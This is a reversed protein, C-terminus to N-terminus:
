TIPGKTKRSRPKAPLWHTRFWKEADALWIRRAATGPLARVALDGRTIADYVAAPRLGLATALAAPSLALYVIPSKTKRSM